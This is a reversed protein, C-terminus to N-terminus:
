SPDVGAFGAHNEKMRDDHAKSMHGASRRAMVCIPVELDDCAGIRATGADVGHVLKEPEIMDVGLLQKCGLGKVLCLERSIKGLRSRYMNPFFM